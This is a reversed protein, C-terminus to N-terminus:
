GREISFTHTYSIANIRICLVYSSFGLWQEPLGQAEMMQTTRPAVLQRLNWAIPKTELDFFLCFPCSSSLVSLLRIAVRPNIRTKGSVQLLSHLSALSITEGYTTIFWLLQPLELSLMCSLPQKNFYACTELATVCNYSFGHFRRSVYRPQGATSTLHPLAYIIFM